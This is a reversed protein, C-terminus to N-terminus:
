SPKSSAVLRGVSLTAEKENRSYRYRAVVVTSSCITILNAALAILLWLMPSTNSNMWAKRTGTSEWDRPAM